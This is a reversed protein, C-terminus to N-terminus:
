SRRIHTMLEKLQFTIVVTILCAWKKQTKAEYEGLRMGKRGNRWEGSIDVVDQNELDDQGRLHCIFAAVIKDSLTSVKESVIALLTVYESRSCCSRCSLVENGNGVGHRHYAIIEDVAIPDIAM